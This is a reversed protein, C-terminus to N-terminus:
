VYVARTKGKRRRKRLAELQVIGRKLHGNEGRMRAYARALKKHKHKLKYLPGSFNKLSSRLINNTQKELVLANVVEMAKKRIDEAEQKTKHLDRRMSRVQRASVKVMTQRYTHPHRTHVAFHTIQKSHFIQNM